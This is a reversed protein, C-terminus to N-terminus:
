ASPKFPTQNLQDDLYFGELEGITHDIGEFTSNDLLKELALMIGEHSVVLAVEGEKITGFTEKVLELFLIAQQRYPERAAPIAFITGGIGQPHTRRALAIQSSIEAGLAPFSVRADTAPVNGSLLQATETARGWPSSIVKAFAPLKTKLAQANTKAQATLQDVKLDWNGHRLILVQKM